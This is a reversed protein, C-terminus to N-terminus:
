MRRYCICNRGLAHHSEVDCDDEEATGSELNHTAKNVTPQHCHQPACPRDGHHRRLTTANPRTQKTTTLAPPLNITTPPAVRGTGMQCNTTAILRPSHRHCLQSTSYSPPQDHNVSAAPPQLTDLAPSLPLQKETASGRGNVELMTPLRM